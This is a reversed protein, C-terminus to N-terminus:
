IDLDKAAFGFWVKIFVIDNSSKLLMEFWDYRVNNALPFQTYCSIANATGV